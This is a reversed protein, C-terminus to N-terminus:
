TEFLARPPMTAEVRELLPETIVTGAKELAMLFAGIAPEFRSDRATVEPNVARVRDIIATRLLGSSHRLVGGALALLFPNLEIGVRRAAALAYDGLASGHSEVIQQAVRDGAAAEDLLARAVRGSQPDPDAGIRTFYHLVDEVTDFGFIKLVRGTLATPGEIGIASRYVARLSKDALDGAGHPEQWYSTHWSLGDPARAGIAVGSGCVVVVGIGAQSGARLAGIADNVVLADVALGVDQVASRLLQHDEPWDAGAMSFVSCALSQSPHNTMERAGHVACSVARISPEVGISHIDSCGSRGYGTISGDVRGILAITKSNGGDVGLVVDGDGHTM